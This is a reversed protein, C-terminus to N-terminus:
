SSNAMPFGDITRAGLSSAPMRASIADPSTIIRASRPAALARSSPSPRNTSINPHDSKILTETAEILTELEWLRERVAPLQEALQEIRAIEDRKAALEGMLKGIKNELGYLLNM